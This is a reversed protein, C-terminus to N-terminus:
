IVRWTAPLALFRPQDLDLQLAPTPNLDIAIDVRRCQRTNEVHQRPSSGPERLTRTHSATPRVSMLFPIFPSANCTCCTNPRSGCAPSKYTKLPALPSRMLITQCSPMPM